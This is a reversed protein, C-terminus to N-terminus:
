FAVYRTHRWALCKKVDDSFFVICPLEVAVIAFAFPTCRSASSKSHALRGTAQWAEFGKRPCGLGVTRVLRGVFQIFVPFLDIITCAKAMIVAITPCSLSPDSRQLAM